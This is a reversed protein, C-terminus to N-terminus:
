GSHPDVMEGKFIFGGYKFTSVEKLLNEKEGTFKLISGSHALKQIEAPTRSGFILNNNIYTHM